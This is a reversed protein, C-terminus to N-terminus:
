LFRPQPNITYVAAPNGRASPREVGSKFIKGATKLESLRPAVDDPHEQLLAALEDATYDGHSTLMELCRTRIRNAKGKVAFAAAASTGGTKFGPMGHYPAAASKPHIATM